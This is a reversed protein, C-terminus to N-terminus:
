FQGCDRHSCWGFYGPCNREKAQRVGSVTSVYNYSTGGGVSASGVYSIGTISASLQYSFSLTQGNSYTLDYKEPCSSYTEEGLLGSQSMDSESSSSSQSSSSTNDRAYVDAANYGTLAYQVNLTLVVLLVIAAIVKFNIHKKM